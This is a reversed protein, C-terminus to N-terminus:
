RRWASSSISMMRLVGKQRKSLAILREMYTWTKTRLHSPPVNSGALRTSESAPRGLGFDSTGESASGKEM